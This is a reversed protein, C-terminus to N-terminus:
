LIPIRSNSNRIKRCVEIGDGEPIMVDLIISDYTNIEFKYLAEEGTHAIDVGYGSEILGRRLFNAIKEEDEVVLINMIGVISSSLHIYCPFAIIYKWTIRM